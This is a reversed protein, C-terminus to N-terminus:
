KGHANEWVLMAEKPTLLELMVKNPLCVVQNGLIRLDRNQLTVEGQHVCDQNECTASAMFFGSPSIHVVNKMGDAQTIPLEREELLPYPMFVVDGVTLLMYCNAPALTAAPYAEAQANDSAKADFGQTEGSTQTMEPNKNALPSTAYYKNGMNLLYLSVAAALICIIIM